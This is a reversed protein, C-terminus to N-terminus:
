SAVNIEIRLRSLSDDAGRTVIAVVLTEAQDRTDSRVSREHRVQRMKESLEQPM